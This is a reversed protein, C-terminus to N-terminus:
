KDITFTWYTEQSLPIFDLEEEYFKSADWGGFEIEGGDDSM